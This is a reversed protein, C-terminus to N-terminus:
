RRQMGPGLFQGAGHGVMGRDGQLDGLLRQAAQLGPQAVVIDVIEDSQSVTAIVKAFAHSSEQTLPRRFPRPCSGSTFIFSSTIIRKPVVRAARPSHTATAAQWLGCCFIALLSSM